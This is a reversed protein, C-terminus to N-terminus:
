RPLAAGFTETMATWHREAAAADYPANDPVAFGHAAQYWEITHQVGAATLAKDLQEAHDATFSPDNEAGGVYMTATMADALLHPSDPSDTVLGGGHFSAAAAVRDPLRGALMVSIRGGMCYGCVGFRDGSVEPRAALYDFFAAADSTVKDPTLSGIMSMLRNREKEDGFVSAMEFPAWDGNRYYVDPLLVAYGFGALKAAMEYFTERVGGADPYMVVGPWPGPGDPTFLRVTCTGDPTSVSDTITPM